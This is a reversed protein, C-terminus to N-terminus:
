FQEILFNTSFLKNVEILFDPDPDTVEGGDQLIVEDNSNFPYYYLTSDKTLVVLGSSTLKANGEIKLGKMDKEMIKLARKVPPLGSVPLYKKDGQM